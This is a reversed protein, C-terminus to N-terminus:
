WPNVNPQTLYGPSVQQNVYPGTPYGPSVQQNVYSGTPYGPNVQPNVYSGTPYGPNVQPNVYPGTPYGPSVQQNVYSGTPYGPRAQPNVNTNNTQVNQCQQTTYSEVRDRVAYEQGTFRRGSYGDDFGRAFEGGVSRPKYTEGRSASLRGEGFGDEYAGVHAAADRVINTSTVPKCVTVVESASAVPTLLFYVPASSLVVISAVLRKM